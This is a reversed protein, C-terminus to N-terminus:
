AINGTVVLASSLWTKRVQSGVGSRKRTMEAALQLGKEDTSLATHASFTSRQCSKQRLWAKVLNSCVWAQMKKLYAASSKRRAFGWGQAYRAKLIKRKLHKLFM